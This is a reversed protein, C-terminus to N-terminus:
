PCPPYSACDLPDADTPDPGCAGFPAPLPAPGGTPFLNGLLAIADAINLGGDDNADASDQCSLGPPGGAPPFLNSLIYVADAINLGGDVNADGRKFVQAIPGGGLVGLYRALLDAKDGGFGGFEWSQCLVKGGANTDYYVGVDYTGGAQSWVVASNPGLSDATTIVLQDTWDNGAQDQTYPVAVLDSLDLGTGSDAGTLSVLSDDGDGIVSDIGDIDGFSGIGFFGWQDGSEVYIHIGLAQALVLTSEDVDTLDRVDPYTGGMYWVRELTPDSLCAILEPGGDLVVTSLGATMLETDLALTSDVLGGAVTEGRLIVDTVGFAGSIVVDVDAGISTGQLACQGLVTYTHTIGNTPSTDAFNATGSPLGTTIAVGDRLVDYTDFAGPTWSLLVEDVNCDYTGALGSLVPDCLETINIDGMGTGGAAWAGVRVLITQGTTVPITVQSGLGCFDGSCAIQTKTACAGEFVELDTDFSNCTDVQLFGDAVATYTGWYDNSMQGFFVGPCNLGSRPDVSDTCNTTDFPNAGMILPQADCCEDGLVAPPCPGGTCAVSCNASSSQGGACNARIEYQILGTPPPSADTYFVDTGPLTAIVGGDRLIEINDYVAGSFTSWALEVTNTACDIECTDLNAIPLCPCPGLCDIAVDDYYFIGGGDNYLDLCRMQPSGGAGFWTNGVMIPLNNYYADYTNTTLNVEVRVEVWQDYLLAVPTGTGTPASSGGVDGVMGAPIAGFGNDTLIIQASWNYPGGHEYENLLIFFYDGNQGAPIYVNSTFVFSGSSFSFLRVIDDAPQLELSNPLSNAFTGVVQADVGANQDWTDWAGQGAIFSGTAYSDFNDADLQAFLAPTACLVTACLAAAFLAPGRTRTSLIGQGESRM